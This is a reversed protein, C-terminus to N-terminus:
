ASLAEQEARFEQPTLYRPKLYGWGSEVIYRDHLEDYVASWASMQKVLRWNRRGALDRKWMYGRPAECPIEPWSRLMLPGPDRPRGGPWKGAGSNRKPNWGLMPARRTDLVRMSPALAPALLAAAAALMVLRKEM